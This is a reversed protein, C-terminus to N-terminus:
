IACDIIAKVTVFIVERGVNTVPSDEDEQVMDELFALLDEQEYENFFPDLRDRWSGSGSEQLLEWNSEEAHSLDEVDFEPLSEGSNEIATLSVVAIYWQLDREEELLVDNSEQDLYALLTPHSEMIESTRTVLDEAKEEFRAVVGDIIEEKIFTM